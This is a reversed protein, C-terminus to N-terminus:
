TVDFPSGSSILGAHMFALSYHPDVSDPWGEQGVSILEVNSFRAYSPLITGFKNFAAVLVRAAFMDKEQDTYEKGIIWVTQNLLVVEAQHHFTFSNDSLSSFASM